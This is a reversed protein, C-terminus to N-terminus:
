ENQTSVQLPKGQDWLNKELNKMVLSLTLQLDVRQQWKPSAREKAFFFKM